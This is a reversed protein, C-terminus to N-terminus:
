FFLNKLYKIKPHKRIYITLVVLHYGLPDGINGVYEEKGRHRFSPGIEGHYSPDIVKVLVTVRNKGKPNLLM